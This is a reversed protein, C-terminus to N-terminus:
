VAERETDKINESYLVAAQLAAALDIDKGGINEGDGMEWGHDLFVLLIDWLTEILVCKQADTADSDALYPLWDEINLHVSPRTKGKPPSTPPIQTM